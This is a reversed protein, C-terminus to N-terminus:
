PQEGYRKIFDELDDRLCPWDRGGEYDDRDDGIGKREQIDFAINEAALKAFDKKESVVMRGLDSFGM